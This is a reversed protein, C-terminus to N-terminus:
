QGLLPQPRVDDSGRTLGNAPRHTHEVHPIAFLKPRTGLPAQGVIPSANDNSKSKKLNVKRFSFYKQNINEDRCFQAASLGSQQQKIIIEQWQKQSRRKM